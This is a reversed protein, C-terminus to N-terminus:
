VNLSSSTSSSSTSSSSSSVTNSSSSSSSSSVTNSSSSSSSASQSSIASSSSSQSSLTSTSSSSGSSSSSKTSQSSSSSEDDDHRGLISISYVVAGGSAGFRVMHSSADTVPLGDTNPNHIMLAMGNRFGGGNAVTMTPMWALKNTPDTANIQLRGAGSIQRIVVTVLEEFTLAQGLADAGAGGGIDISGLDYFDIDESAGSALSREVDEWARNFQDESVGDDMRDNILTGGLSCQAVQGDDMTNVIVPNTTLKVDGSASRNSM